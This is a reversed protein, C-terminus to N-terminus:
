TAWTAKRVADFGDLIWDALDRRGDHAQWQDVAVQLVAVAVGALTAATAHDVGTGHFLGAFAERLNRLDATAADLLAPERHILQTRRLVLQRDTDYVHDLEAVLADRVAALPGRSALRAAVAAFIGPDYDDWLVLGEKTGFWRYLSVPAVDAAEAVQEVTVSDFGDREFLAIASQQAAVM